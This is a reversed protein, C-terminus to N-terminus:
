GNSGSVVVAVDASKTLEFGQFFFVVSRGSKRHGEVSGLLDDRSESVLELGHQPIHLIQILLVLLVQGCHIFKGPGLDGLSALFFDFVVLSAHFGVLLFPDLPNAEIRTGFRRDFGIEFERTVFEDPNLFVIHTGKLPLGVHKDFGVLLGGASVEGRGSRGELM